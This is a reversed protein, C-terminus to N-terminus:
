SLACRTRSGASVYDMCEIAVRPRCLPCGGAIRLNSAVSEPVLSIDIEHLGGSREKFQIGNRLEWVASGLRRMGIVSANNAGASAAPIGTDPPLIARIMKM